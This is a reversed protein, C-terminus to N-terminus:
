NIIIITKIEVRSQDKPILRWWNPKFIIKAEKIAQYKGFISKTDGNQAVLENKFSNDDLKWAFVAHGKIIFTAANATFNKLEFELKEPNLIELRGALEKSFYKEALARGLDDKKILFGYFVGSEEFELTESAEGIKSKNKQETGGSSPFVIKKAENYFLFEDSKPNAATEMFYNTIRERLSKQLALFDNETVVKKQGILGGSIGTKSRAYIKKKKEPDQFGPITFDSLGTNYEEGPKDAFVTTEIESATIKGNEIKAGPIVIPKNIRYIKGNPAEFRTNAILSQSQSSYTNYIVIQGSAKVSVDKLGTTQLSGNEKRDLRMIELPLEGKKPSILANLTVNVETTEFRPTIEVIISSIKNLIFIGIAAFIAIACVIGIVKFKFNSKLFPMRFKWKKSLKGENAFIENYWEDHKASFSTEKKRERATPAGYKEANRNASLIRKKSVIIDQILKKPM